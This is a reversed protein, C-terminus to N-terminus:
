QLCVATLRRMNSEYEKEINASATLEIQEFAGRECCLAQSTVVGVFKFGNSEQCLKKERASDESAAEGSFEKHM